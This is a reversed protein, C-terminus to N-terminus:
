KREPQDAKFSVPIVFKVSVHKGDPKGPKWKATLDIIGREAGVDFDPGLSKMTKVETIIRDM